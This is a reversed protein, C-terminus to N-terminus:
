FVYLKWVFFCHHIFVPTFVLALLKSSVAVHCSCIFWCLLFCDVVNVLMITVDAPSNALQISNCRATFTYLLNSQGTASLGQNNIIYTMRIPSPTTEGWEVMIARKNYLWWWPLCTKNEADSMLLFQPLVNKWLHHHSDNMCVCVSYMSKYVM